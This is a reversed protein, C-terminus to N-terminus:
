GWRTGYDHFLLAIGRVWGRPWLRAQLPFGKGKCKKIKTKTGYWVTLDITVIRERQLIMGNMEGCTKNNKHTKVCYHKILTLPLIGKSAM